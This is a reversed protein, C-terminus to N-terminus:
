ESPCDHVSGSIGRKREWVKLIGMFGVFSAGDDGREAGM